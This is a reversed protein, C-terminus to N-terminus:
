GLDEFPAAYRFIGRISDSWSSLTLVQFYDGWSADPPDIGVDVSPVFGFRGYYGPDGLLAILPEGGADAAGIMAHMLASGAGSAQRAPLVGIPGLGVCATEGVTGRTCVNHGIVQGDIEAVWSLSPLWGDCRRLEDLLRAEVPEDDGQEFAAVQVSRAAEHDRPQERRVMM